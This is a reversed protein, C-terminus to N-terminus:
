RNGYCLPGKESSGGNETRFRESSSCKDEQDRGNSCAKNDGASFANAEEAVSVTTANDTKAEVSFSRRGDGEKRKTERRREKNHCGSSV